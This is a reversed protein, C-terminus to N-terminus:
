YHILNESDTTTVQLCTPIWDLRFHYMVWGGVGFPFHYTYPPSLSLASTLLAGRGGVMVIIMMLDLTSPSSNMSYMACYIDSLYVNKIPHRTQPPAVYKLLLAYVAGNQM